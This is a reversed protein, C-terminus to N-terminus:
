DMSEPCFSKHGQGVFKCIKCQSKSIADELQKSLTQVLANSYQLERELMRIKVSERELSCDMSDILGRSVAADQRRCARNNRRVTEMKM